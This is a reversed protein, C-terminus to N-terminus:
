RQQICPIPKGLLHLHKAITEIFMKLTSVAISHQKEKKQCIYESQILADALHGLHLTFTFIYCKQPGAM